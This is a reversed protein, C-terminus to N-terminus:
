THPQLLGRTYGAITDTQQKCYNKLVSRLLSIYWESKKKPIKLNITTWKTKLIKM